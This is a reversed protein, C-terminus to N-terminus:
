PARKAIEELMIETAGGGVSLIRADRVMREIVCEKMYGMGGHFQQCAYMVENVLEGAVAKAMSVERTADVGQTALWAAHYVLQRVAEVRAELLSLRQRIVPQDWLTQGFAKRQRVYERTRRLAETSEGIAMAALVLRENQFNRMIAYFGHGEEGLLNGAPIRCNDFSLEATDSSRWGFKELTRSVVFGPTGAEVLFLSIGRHGEADPDTRAAVIALDAEAGNTIFM